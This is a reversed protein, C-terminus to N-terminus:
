ESVYKSKSKNSKFKSKLREFSFSAKIYEFRTIIVATLFGIFFCGLVIIYLPTKFSIEPLLVVLVDANNQAAFAMFALAFASLVIGILLKLINNM